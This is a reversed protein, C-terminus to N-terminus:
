GFDDHIGKSSRRSVWRGMLRPIVMAYDNIWNIVTQHNVGLRRGIARFSMGALYLRVAQERMEAPYRFPAPQPTYKKGCNKCRYKQSGSHNRGAKVQNFDAHCNPCRIM